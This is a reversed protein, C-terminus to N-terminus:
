VMNLITPLSSQATKSSLSFHQRQQLLKVFGQIANTKPEGSDNWSHSM